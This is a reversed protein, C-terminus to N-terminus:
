AGIRESTHRPMHVLADLARDRAVDRRQARQWELPTLRHTKDQTCIMDMAMGATGITITYEGHCVIREGMDSTGHELCPIGLRHTHKPEPRAKQTVLKALRAADDTIAIRLQEDAAETFHGIRAAVGRLLAATEQANEASIPVLGLGDCLVCWVPRGQRLRVGRGSCMRCTVITPPTWDTEDMLVRALFNAWDSVEAIVDAIDASIPIPAATRKPHKGGTNEDLDGGPVLRANLEPWLDAITLMDRQVTLAAHEGGSM